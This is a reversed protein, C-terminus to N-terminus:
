PRVPVFSVVVVAVVAMVGAARRGQQGLKGQASEGALVGMPGVFLPEASLIASHPTSSAESIARLVACRLAYLCLPYLLLLLLLLLWSV